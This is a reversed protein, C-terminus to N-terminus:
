FIRHKGGSNACVNKKIPSWEPPKVDEHIIPSSNKISDELDLLVPLPEYEVDILSIAKEAIELSDAAVAAIRDGKHYVKDRSFLPKDNKTGTVVDPFDKHTIVARVGLFNEAKKTDIKKIKGHAIKSFLIKGYLMGPFSVDVGYVAAGTIVNFADKRPLRKGVASYKPM